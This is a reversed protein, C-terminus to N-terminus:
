NGVPHSPTLHWPRFSPDSSVSKPRKVIFKVYDWRGKGGGEGRRLLSQLMRVIGRMPPLGRYKGGQVRSAVISDTFFYLIAGFDPLFLPFKRREVRMVRLPEEYEGKYSIM